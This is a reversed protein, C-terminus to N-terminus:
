RTLKHGLPVIGGSRGEEKMVQALFVKREKIM